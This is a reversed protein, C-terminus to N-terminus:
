RSARFRAFKQYDRHLKMRAFFASSDPLWCLVMAVVGCLISLLDLIVSSGFGTVSIAALVTGLVRAWQHGKKVFVAVLIYLTVTIVFTLVTSAIFINRLADPSEQSLINRTSAPAQNLAERYLEDIDIVLFTQLSAILGFACGSLILWFAWRITRPEEPKEPPTGQFWQAPAQPAQWSPGGQSPAHPGPQQQAPAQWANRQAARAEAEQERQYQEYPSPLGLDAARLGYQPRDQQTPAPAGAAPTDEPTNRPGPGSGGGPAVPEHGPEPTPAQSNM